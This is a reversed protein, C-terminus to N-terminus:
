DINYSSLYIRLSIENKEHSSDGLMLMSVYPYKKDYPISLLLDYNEDSTEQYETEVYYTIDYSYYTRDIFEDNYHLAAKAVSSSGALYLEDYYRNKEDVLIMNLTSPLQSESEYTKLPRIILEAKMIAGKQYLYHLSSIDPLEIRTYMLGGQVFTIDDTHKSSLKNKYPEKESTLTTGEIFSNDYKNSIYSFAYKNKVSNVEMPFTYYKEDDVDADSYYVRLEPTYGVSDTDAGIGVILSSNGSAPKIALGTLYFEKFLEENNISDSGSKCLDFLHQGFDDSLRVGVSDRQDDDELNISFTGLPSTETKFQTTNYINDDDDDDTTIEETLRYVEFEAIKTTDGFSYGDLHFVLYVSDYRMSRREFSPLDSQDLRFYSECRTEFNYENRYSGTLLRQAGSTVFTDSVATYTNVHFTDVMVISFDEQIFRKGLTYNIDADEYQCSQLVLFFLLTVMIARLIRTKESNFKM